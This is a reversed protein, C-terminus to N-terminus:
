VRVEGHGRTGGVGELVGVENDPLPCGSRRMVVNSFKRM